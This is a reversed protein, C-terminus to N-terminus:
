FPFQPLTKPKSNLSQFMAKLSTLTDTACIYVLSVLSGIGGRTISKDVMPSLKPTKLNKASLVHLLMRLVFTNM